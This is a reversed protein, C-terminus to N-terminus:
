RENKKIKNEINYGIMRKNYRLILKRFELGIKNLEDIKRRVDVSSKQQNKKNTKDDIFINLSKDIQEQLKKIKKFMKKIKSLEDLFKKRKREKCAPCVDGLHIRANITAKWNCGCKKNHCKWWYQKRSTRRLASPNVKGNLIPHWDAFIHPFKKKISRPM